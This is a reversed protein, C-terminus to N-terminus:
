DVYREIARVRLDDDYRVLVYTGGNCWTDAPVTPVSSPFTAVFYPPDLPAGMHELVRGRAMGRELEAVHRFWAKREGFPWWALSAVLLGGLVAARVARQRGLNRGIWLTLGAFLAGSVSHVQWPHVLGVGATCADVFWILGCAYAVHVGFLPRLRDERAM